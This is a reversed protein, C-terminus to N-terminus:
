PLLIISKDTVLLLNNSLVRPGIQWGENTSVYGTATATALTDGQYVLEGELFTSTIVNATAAAGFSETLVQQRGTGANAFTIADGLEANAKTIALKLQDGELSNAIGAVAYYTTASNLRGIAGSALPFEVGDGTDVVNM